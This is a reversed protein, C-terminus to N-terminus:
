RSFVVFFRINFHNSNITCQLTPDHKNHSIDKHWSVMKLILLSLSSTQRPSRSYLRSFSFALNHEHTLKM